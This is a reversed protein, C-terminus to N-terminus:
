NRSVPNSSFHFQCHPQIIMYCSHLWILYVHVLHATTPSIFSISLPSFSIFIFCLWHLTSQLFHSSVHVIFDIIYCMPFRHWIVKQLSGSLIMWIRKEDGLCPTTKFPLFVYFTTLQWPLEYVYESGQWVDLIRSKSSLTLPETLQKRM